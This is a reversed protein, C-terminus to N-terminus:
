IEKGRVVWKKVTSDYGASDVRFRFPFKFLTEAEFPNASMSSVDRGSHSDVVFLTNGSFAREPQRSSSFFYSDVRTQGPEYAAQESPTLSVGRFVTGPCEPLKDLARNLEAIYESEGEIDDLTGERLAPNARRYGADSAESTYDTIAQREAATLGSGSPPDSSSSAAGQDGSGGGTTRSVFQLAAQRGTGVSIAAQSCLGSARELAHAIARAAPDDRGAHAARGATQRLKAAESHLQSSVGTMQHAIAAVNRCIDELESM